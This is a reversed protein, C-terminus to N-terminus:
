LYTVARGMWVGFIMMIVKSFLLIEQAKMRFLTERKLFKRHKWWSYHKEKWTWGNEGNFISKMTVSATKLVESSINLWWQLISARNARIQSIKSCFEVGKTNTKDNVRKTLKFSAIIRERARESAGMDNNHCKGNSARYWAKQKSLSLM